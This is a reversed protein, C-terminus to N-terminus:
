YTIYKNKEMETNKTKVELSEILKICSDIDLGVSDEADGYYISICFDNSDNFKSIEITYNNVKSYLETHKKNILADNILNELNSRNKENILIEVM